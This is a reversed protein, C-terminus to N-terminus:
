KQEKELKNYQAIIELKRERTLRPIARRYDVEGVREEEYTNLGSELSAARNFGDYLIPQTLKPNRKLFKQREDHLKKAVRDLKRILSTNFEKPYDEALRRSVASYSEISRQALVLLPEVYAPFRMMLEATATVAERYESYVHERLGLDSFAQEKPNLTYRIVSEAERAMVEEPVFNTDIDSHRCNSLRRALVIQVQNEVKLARTHGVEPSGSHGRYKYIELDLGEAPLKLQAKFEPDDQRAEILDFISKANVNPRLEIIMAIISAVMPYDSMSACESVIDDISDSSEIRKRIEQFAVNKNPNTLAIFKERENDGRKWNDWDSTLRNLECIFLVLDGSSIAEPNSGLEKSIAYIKAKLETKRKSMKENEQVLQFLKERDVIYDVGKLSVAISSVGDEDTSAISQWSELVGMSGGIEEINEIKKGDRSRILVGSIMFPEMMSKHTNHLLDLATGAKLRGMIRVSHDYFIKAFKCACIEPPYLMSLETGGDLWERLVPEEAEEAIEQQLNPDLSKFTAPDMGREQMIRSREAVFKQDYLAIFAPPFEMTIEDRVKQGRVPADPNKEQYGLLINDLTEQTRLSDSSYASAGDKSAPIDGGFLHADTQGKPSISSSSLGSNEANTVEGSMKQAHRGWFSKLIVNTGKLEEPAGTDEQSGEPNTRGLESNNVM